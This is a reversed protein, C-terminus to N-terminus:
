TPRISSTTTGGAGLRSHIELVATTIAIVVALSLGDPLLAVIFVFDDVGLNYEHAIRGHTLGANYPREHLPFRLGVVGDEPRGHHGVEAAHDCDVDVASLVADLEVDPICRAIPINM